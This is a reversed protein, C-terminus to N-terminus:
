QVFLISRWLWLLAISTKEHGSLNNYFDDGTEIRRPLDCREPHHSLVSAPEFDVAHKVHAAGCTQFSASHTYSIRYLNIPFLSIQPKLIQAVSPKHLSLMHASSINHKSCTGGSICCTTQYKNGNLENGVSCNTVNKVIISKKWLPM